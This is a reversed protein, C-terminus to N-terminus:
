ISKRTAISKYGDGLSQGENGISEYSDAAENAVTESEPINELRAKPQKDRQSSASSRTGPDQQSWELWRGTNESAEVVTKRAASYCDEATALMLHYPARIEQGHRSWEYSKHEPGIICPLNPM